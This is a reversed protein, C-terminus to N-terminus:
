YIAYIATEITPEMWHTRHTKSGQMGALRFPVAGSIYGREGEDSGM